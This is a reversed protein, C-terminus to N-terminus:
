CGSSEDVKFFEAARAAIQTITLVLLATVGPVEALAYAVAHADRDCVKQM